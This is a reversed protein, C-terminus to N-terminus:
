DEKTRALRFIMSSLFCFLNWLLLKTAVDTAGDETPHQIELGLITASWIIGCCALVLSLFVWIKLAMPGVGDGLLSSDDTVAEWNVVNIMVLALVQFIGPVWWSGEVSMSYETAFFSVGDIWLLISAGFLCGAATSAVMSLPSM